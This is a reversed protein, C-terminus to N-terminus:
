LLNDQTMAKPAAVFMDPQAYAERIRRCAIEFYEPSREVGIFKKGMKVCAVGTTGSGMYPDFILTQPPPLLSLCWQMLELPKVTPHANNEGKDGQSSSLRFMAAPRDFTTWAIEAASFNPWPQQKDWVLVGRCPPLTFYNGGWIIAHQGSAIIRELMESEPAVDWELNAVNLKRQKLKGAGRGCSGTLFGYPPDTVVANVGGLQPLVETCDGLYLTCEGIQEVRMM